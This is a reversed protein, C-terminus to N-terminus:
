KPIPTLKLIIDPKNLLIYLAGDPSTKIDRVRGFGKLIM